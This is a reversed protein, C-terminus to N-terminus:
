ANGRNYFRARRAWCANVHPVGPKNEKVAARIHDKTVLLVIKQVNGRAVDDNTDMAERVDLLWERVPSYYMGMPSIQTSSNEDLKVLFIPVPHLEWHSGCHSCIRHWPVYGAEAWQLTGRGCDPCTPFWDGVHLITEGDDKCIKHPIKYIDRNPKPTKATGKYVLYSDTM